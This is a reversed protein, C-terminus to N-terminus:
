LAFLSSLFHIDQVLPLVRVRRPVWREAKGSRSFVVRSLSSNLGPVSKVASSKPSPFICPHSEVASLMPYNTRFFFSSADFVSAAFSTLTDSVTSPLPILDV